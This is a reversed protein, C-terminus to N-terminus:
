LEYDGSESLIIMFVSYILQWVKQRVPSTPKIQSRPTLLLQTPYNIRRKVLSTKLQKGLIVPNNIPFFRISFRTLVRKPNRRNIIDLNNVYPIKNSINKENRQRNEISRNGNDRTSIRLTFHTTFFYRLFVTKYRPLKM